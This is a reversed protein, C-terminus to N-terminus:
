AQSTKTRTVWGGDDMTFIAYMSIYLISFIFSFSLIMPALVPNKLKQTEDNIVGNYILGIVPAIIVGLLVQIILLTFMNGSWILYCSLIMWTFIRAAPLLSALANLIGNHQLREYITFVLEFAQMLQSRRWRLQQNFFGVITNPTGVRCRAKLNIHTMYGRALLYQTIARDEGNSTPSGLFNRNQIKSVIELYHNKRFAVLPGGLCQVIGLSSEITKSLYFSSAYIIAQYQTLLNQNTNLIGIRGGVGAIKDDTFCVVLEKITNPYFMCDSDAGIIIEGSAEQALEVFTLAKGMNHENKSVIVNEFDEGIKKVWEWTNDPSCDDRVLIQLKHRPYENEVMSKVANYVNQGENFASILISVTPELSYDKKPEGLFKDEKKFFVIFGISFIRYFMPIVITFVIMLSMLLFTFQFHM